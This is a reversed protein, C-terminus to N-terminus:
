PVSGSSTGMDSSTSPMRSCLSSASALPLLWLWIGAAERLYGAPATSGARRRGDGRVRLPQRDSRRSLHLLRLLKQSSTAGALLLVLTAFALWYGDHGGASMAHAFEAGVGHQAVFVAQHGIVVCALLLSANRVLRSIRAVPRSAVLEM